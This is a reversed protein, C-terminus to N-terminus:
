NKIECGKACEAGKALSKSQWGNAKTVVHVSYIIVYYYFAQVRIYDIQNAQSKIRSIMETESDKQCLEQANRHRVKMIILNINYESWIQKTFNEGIIDETM